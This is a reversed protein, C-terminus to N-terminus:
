TTTGPRDGFLARGTPIGNSGTFTLKILKNLAASPQIIVKEGAATAFRISGDDHMEIDVTAITASASTLGRVKFDHLKAM